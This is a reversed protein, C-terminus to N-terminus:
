DWPQFNPPVYVAIKPAKELKVVEMNAEQGGVEALISAASSGSITQFSVGRLRCEAEIFPYFPMMFSGGKYNLLWDVEVGRTLTWYVIGYAKLHDSQQLDMEILINQQARLPMTGAALLLLILVLRKM